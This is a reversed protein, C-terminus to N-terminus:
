HGTRNQNGQYLCCCCCEMCLSHLSCWRDFNVSVLFWVLSGAFCVCGSFWRVGMCPLPHKWWDHYCYIFSAQKAKLWLFSLLKVKEILVMLTSVLNKLICNNREKWIVWVCAFWIVKFFSHTGRSMGAMFSFQIFHDRIQCPPVMSIGIWNWVLFWLSSSLDLWPFSSYSNRGRWM